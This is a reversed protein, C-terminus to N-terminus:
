TTFDIYKMAYGCSVNRFYFLATYHTFCSFHATDKLDFSDIKLKKIYSM